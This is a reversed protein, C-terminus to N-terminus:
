KSLGKPKWDSHFTELISLADVSLFERLCTECIELNRNFETPKNQCLLECLM